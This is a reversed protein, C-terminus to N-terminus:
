SGGVMGEGGNEMLREYRPHERTDDWDDDKEVHSKSIEGRELCGELEDLAEDVEGSLMLACALNYHKGGLRVSERSADVAEALYSADGTRHWQHILAVSLYDWVETDDASLELLKRLVEVAEQGLARCQEANAEMAARRDLAAGLNRWTKGDKLNAAAKRLVDIAEDLMEKGQVPDIVQDAKKALYLGLNCLAHDNHPNVGVANRLAEIAEELMEKRKEDDIEWDSSRGLAMGLTCWALDSKVNVELANRLAVIAEELVVKGQGKDTERDAKEGLAIGLALWASGNKVNAEIAKRLTNIEDVKLVESQKPDQEVKEREGLLLGLSCLARSDRPAYQVGKRMAMIAEDMTRVQEASAERRAKEALTVGLIMWKTGDHPNDELVQRIATVAEIRLAKARESGNEANAQEGCILGLALWADSNERNIAVAKRFAETAESFEKRSEPGAQWGARMRRGIGWGFWWADDASKLERGEIGGGGFHTALAQRARRGLRDVKSTFWDFSPLEVEVGPLRDAQLIYDWRPRIWQGCIGEAHGDRGMQGIMKLYEGYEGGMDEYMKGGFVKHYEWSPYVVRLYGSGTRAGAELFRALTYFVRAVDGYAELVAPWTEKLWTDVASESFREVDDTDLTEKGSRACSMVFTAIGEPNTTRKSVADVFGDEIGLCFDKEGETESISIVGHSMGKWLARFQESSLDGLSILELEEGLQPLVEPWSARAHMDELRITGVIVRQEFYPQTSFWRFLRRVADTPTNELGGVPLNAPLDDLFLVARQPLLHGSESYRSMDLVIDEIREPISGVDTRLVVWANPRDQTLKEIWEKAARTKGCDAPGVFIRSTAGEVGGAHKEEPAIYENDIVSLRGARCLVVPLSEPPIALIKFERGSDRSSPIALEVPAGEGDEGEEETAEEAAPVRDPSGGTAVQSNAYLATGVMADLDQRVVPHMFGTVGSLRAEERAGSVEFRIGLREALITNVGDDDLCSRIKACIHDQMWQWTDGTARVAVWIRLVRREHECLEVTFTADPMIPRCQIHKLWHFRSVDEMRERMAEYAPIPARRPGIDLEDIIRVLACLAKLHPPADALPKFRHYQAITCADQVVHAQDGGFTSMLYAIRDEKAFSNAIEDQHTKRVIDAFSIDVGMRARLEAEREPSPVAVMAFDHMILALRLLNAQEESLQPTAKHVLRALRDVEELHERGHLTFHPFHQMGASFAMAVYERFNQLGSENIM